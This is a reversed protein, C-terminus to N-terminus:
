SNAFFNTDGEFFERNSFNPLVKVNRQKPSMTNITAIIKTKTACFPKDVNKTSLTFIKSKKNPFSHCGLILPSFPKGIKPANGIILPDKKTVMKDARM